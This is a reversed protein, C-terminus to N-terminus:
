SEIYKYIIRHENSIRCSWLEKFDGKLPESKGIGEFPTRRIGEKLLM